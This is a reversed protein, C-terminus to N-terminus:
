VQSLPPRYPAHRVGEAASAPASVSTMTAPGSVAPLFVSPGVLTRSCCFCDPVCVNATRSKDTDAAAIVASVENPNGRSYCESDALDATLVALFALALIRMIQRRRRSTPLMARFICRTGRYAIVLEAIAM